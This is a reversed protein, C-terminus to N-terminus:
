TQIIRSQVASLSFLVVYLTSVCLDQGNLMEGEDEAIGIGFVQGTTILFSSSSTGKRVLRYLDLM